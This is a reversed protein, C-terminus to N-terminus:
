LPLIETDLVRRCRFESGSGTESRLRFIGGGHAIICGVLVVIGFLSSDNARSGHAASTSGAVSRDKLLKVRLLRVVSM